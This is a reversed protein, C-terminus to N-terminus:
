STKRPKMCRWQEQCSDKRDERYERYDREERDKRDEM